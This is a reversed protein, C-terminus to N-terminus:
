LNKRIEENDVSNNYLTIFGTICKEKDFEDMLDM